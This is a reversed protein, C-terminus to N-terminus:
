HGQWNQNGYHGGGSQSQPSSSYGSSTQPTASASSHYYNPYSEYYRTVNRPTGTPQSHAVTTQPNANNVPATETRAAQPQSHYNAATASHQPNMAVTAGHQPPPSYSQPSVPARLPSGFDRQRAAPNSGSNYISRSVTQSHGGNAFTSNIQHVPVPNIATHTASAINQVAIGHNVITRNNVNYNNIVTTNNYIQTVQARPVCYNRPHPSCFNATPVFTFCSAGLGFSFGVSVSGGNYVIGVGTQYATGPPLPAWGCYNNSYRWTVWSPAWVTDPCWCWGLSASQFWRGYHFTAGWAYDSAWYWGCDTYVWHGRDCYPQWSSNYTCVTPRWCRGYGNVVVWSGYPALSDYFYNVTVPAPQTDPQAAVEATNSPVTEPAPAPQNQQAQQAAQAAAFQQQLLQDRQMMVTVMGSPVGADSAYIIKESDLNFTSASNTIYTMIVGQDVGAQTLRVVQALPSTPYIDPPPTVPTVPPAATEPAVPTPPTQASANQLPGAGALAVAALMLGLRFKKPILTKM